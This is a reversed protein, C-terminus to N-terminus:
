ELHGVSRQGVDVGRDHAITDDGQECLSEICLQTSSIWKRGGRTPTAHCTQTKGGREGGCGEHEHARDTCRSRLQVTRDSRPERDRDLVSRPGLDRAEIGTRERERDLVLRVIVVEMESPRADIDRGLDLRLPRLGVREIEDVALVREDAIGM